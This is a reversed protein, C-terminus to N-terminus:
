THAGGAAGRGGSRDRTHLVYKKFVYSVVFLVMPVSGLAGIPGPEDSWRFAALFMTGLFIFVASLGFVDKVIEEKLAPDM